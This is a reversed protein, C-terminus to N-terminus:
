RPDRPLHDPRAQPGHGQPAGSVGLDGAQQLLQGQGAGQAPLRLRRSPHDERRLRAAPAPDRRLIGLGTGVPRQPGDPGSLDEIIPLIESKLGGYGDLDIQDPEIGAAVAANVIAAVENAKGPSLAAVGGFDQATVEQYSVQQYFTNWYPRYTGDPFGVKLIPLGPKRLFLKELHEARPIVYGDEGMEGHDNWFENWDVFFRRYESHDGRELLDQFQPSAVSLHNLILDFKFMIGLRALQELDQPSVLDENLGYDIISFGRDLDSNFFTPLIYLLSFAGELEPRQLLTVLDALRGGISDPYANLMVGKPLVQAAPKTEAPMAAEQATTKM